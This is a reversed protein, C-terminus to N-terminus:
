PRCCFVFMVSFDNIELLLFGFFVAYLREGYLKSAGISNFVRKFTSKVSIGPTSAFVTMFTIESVPVSMDRHFLAFCKQEQSPSQGPFLIEPPLIKLLLVFGVCLRAAPAKRREAFASYLEGEANPAKKRRMRAFNPAGFAM